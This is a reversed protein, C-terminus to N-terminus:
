RYGGHGFWRPHDSSAQTVGCHRGRWSSAHIQVSKKLSCRRAVSQRCSPPRYPPYYVVTQVINSLVWSLKAIAEMAFFFNWLQILTCVRTWICKKYLTTMYKCTNHLVMCTCTHVNSVSTTLMLTCMQNVSEVPHEYAISTSIYICTNM